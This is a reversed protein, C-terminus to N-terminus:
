ARGGASSAVGGAVSGASNSRVRLVHGAVRCSKARGAVGRTKGLAADTGVAATSGVSSVGTDVRVQVAGTVGSSAVGGASNSRVRLVHGSAGRAHSAGAHGSSAAVGLVHGTVGSSKARGAVGRAQGLATDAGVAATSSVSGVGTDVRVKVARAARSTKTTVGVVLGGGTSRAKGAVTGTSVTRGAGVSAGVARAHGTSVRTRVHSAVGGIVAGVGSRSGLSSTGVLRVHEVLGVGADVGVKIAALSESLLLGKLSRLDGEVVESTLVVRLGVM